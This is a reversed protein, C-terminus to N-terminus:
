PFRKSKRVVHAWVEIDNGTKDYNFVATRIFGTRAFVKVSANNGNRTTAQVLHARNKKARRVARKVIKTGLGQGEEDPAVSVYKVAWLYWDTKEIQACAVVSHDEESLEYVFNEANETVEEATLKRVLQNRANILGAIQAAHDYRM